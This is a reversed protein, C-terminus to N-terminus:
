ELYLHVSGFCIQKMIKGGREKVWKRSTVALEPSHERLRLRSDLEVVADGRNKQVLDVQQIGSVLMAGSFLGDWFSLLIGVM